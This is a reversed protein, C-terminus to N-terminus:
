RRSRLREVYRDVDAEAAPRDFFTKLAELALFFGWVVGVYAIWPEWDGPNGGTAFREFAGNDQWQTLAWVATLAAMGLVYVATHWRLRRVREVHARAWVRLEEDRPETAASTPAAPSGNRTLLDTPM